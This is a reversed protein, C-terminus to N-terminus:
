IGINWEFCESENSDFSPRAVATLFIVKTQFIKEDIHVRDNFQINRQFFFESVSM